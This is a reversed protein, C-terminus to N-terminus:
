ITRQRFGSQLAEHQSGVLGTVYVISGPKRTVQMLKSEGNRRKILKGEPHAVVKPDRSGLRQSRCMPSYINHYIVQHLIHDLM